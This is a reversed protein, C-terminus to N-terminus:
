ADGDPTRTPAPILARIAERRASAIARDQRDREENIAAAAVEAALEEISDAGLEFRANPDGWKVQDGQVGKTTRRYQLWSRAAGLWKGGQRLLDYAFVRERKDSM